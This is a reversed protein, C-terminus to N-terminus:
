KLFAFDTWNLSEFIAAALGGEFPVYTGPILYHELKAATGRVPAFADMLKSTESSDTPWYRARSEVDKIAFLTLYTGKRPGRIAKYYLLDMGPMREQNVVENQLKDKVFTEFDTKKDDQIQPFHAGLLGASPSPDVSQPRM